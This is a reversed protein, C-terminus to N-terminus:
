PKAIRRCCVDYKETVVKPPNNAGDVRAELTTITVVEWGQGALETVKASLANADVTAVTYEVKVNAAQQGQAIPGSFMLLGLAGALFGAIGFAASSVRNTSM